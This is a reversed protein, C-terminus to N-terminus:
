THGLVYRTSQLVLQFSVYTRFSTRLKNIVWETFINLRTPRGVKPGGHMHHLCM